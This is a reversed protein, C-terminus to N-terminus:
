KYLEVVCERLINESWMGRRLIRARQQAKKFLFSYEKDKFFPKQLAIGNELLFESLSKQGQMFLICRDDKFELHYMQKIKLFNSSYYKLEPNKIYFSEISKKCTSDLTANSYLEDLTVIGYPKCYFNYNKISFKQRDNSVIKELTALTPETAVLFSALSLYFLYINISKLM